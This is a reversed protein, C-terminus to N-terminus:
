ARAGNGIDKRPLFPEFGEAIRMEDFFAFLGARSVSRPRGRGGKIVYPTTGRQTFLVEFGREAAFNKLHVLDSSAGREFRRIGHAAIYAAIMASTVQPSASAPLTIVPATPKPPLPKLPRTPKKRPKAAARKAKIKAPIGADSGTSRRTRAIKLKGSARLRNVVGAISNRSPAGLAEAIQVYNQGAALRPMVAAGKEEPTLDTWPQAPATM